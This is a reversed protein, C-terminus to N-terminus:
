VQGLSDGTILAAAGIEDALRAAIRMMAQRYLVVRLEPRAHAVVETQVEALPVVHLVTPLLFRELRGALREAQRQSSADTFPQAHFHLLEVAAGRRALRWAAVPSDIGGSLLALMKASTGVPLGGVGPLRHRYVIAANGFLEVWITADPAKLDVRGGTEDKVRAGIIENVEQSSQPFDSYSRRAKIRFSDLPQSRALRLATDELAAMTAETRYGCGVYAVGFVDAVRPAAEMADDGAFDIVVRGFGSRITFQFGSLVSEINRTLKHEFFGRNRGKLGIEAYHAVLADM